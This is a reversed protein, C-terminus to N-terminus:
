LVIRKARIAGRKGMKGEVVIQKGEGLEGVIASVDSMSRGMRNLFTTNANVMIAIPRREDTAPNTISGAVIFTHDQAPNPVKGVVTVKRGKQLLENIFDPVEKSVEEETLIEKESGANLQSAPKTEVAATYQQLASELPTQGEHSLAKEHVEKGDPRHLEEGAHKHAAARAFLEDNYTYPIAVDLAKPLADLRYTIMVKSPDALKQLKAYDAAHLFDKLKVSSGDVQFPVTAPVTICLHAARLYESSTTDLKQRLLLSSLQQMTTLPDGMTIVRVDLMGDDIYADPTIEVVGAYRRTNGVVVQMAEGKWLMKQPLDADFSQIEIPFSRQETMEKAASLGVALPGIRYKLPKSVGGMIAADIGLGAMLLFHHRVKSSEKALKKKAKPAVLIPEEGPFTVSYVEIRGVDVKRVQSNVFALAAKVPELPVGIEGAWVNVTGGPMIGVVSKNNKASMVGNVVQNLTGDGGYAVIFDQERTAADHALKMGHKGYEKLAIKTKWDAASLVALIDRLKAVNEGTRPNIILSVTKGSM